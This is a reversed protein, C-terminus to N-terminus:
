ETVIKKEKTTQGETTAGNGLAADAPIEDM